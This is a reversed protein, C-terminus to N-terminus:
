SFGGREYYERLEELAQARRRQVTPRSLNLAESIKEDTLSFGYSLVVIERMSHRTLLSLMEEFAEERVIDEIENAPDSPNWPSGDEGELVSAPIERDVQRCEARLYRLKSLLKWRTIKALLQWLDNEETPQRAWSRHKDWARLFSGFASSVLDEAELKASLHKPLLREALKLLRDKVHPFLQQLLASDLSM